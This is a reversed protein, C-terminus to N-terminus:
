NWEGNVVRPFFGKNLIEALSRAQFICSCNHRNLISAADIPEVLPVDMEFAGVPRVDVIYLLRLRGIGFCNALLAQLKLFSILKGSALPHLRM